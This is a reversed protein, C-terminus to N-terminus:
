PIRRDAFFLKSAMEDLNCWPLPAKGDFMPLIQKALPWCHVRVWVRAGSCHFVEAVIRPQAQANGSSTQDFWWLGTLALTWFEHIRNQIKLILFVQGPSKLYVQCLSVWSLKPPWIKRKASSNLTKTVHPDYPVSFYSEYTEFGRNLLLYSNFIIGTNVKVIFM